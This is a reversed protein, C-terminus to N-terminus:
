RRGQAGQAGAGSGALCRDVAALLMKVHFPKHLVEDAGRRQALHLFDVAAAAAGSIAIVKLGPSARKVALITEIGEMVPMLLDTIVLDFGGAALAALGEQGNAADRVVHGARELISRLTRRILDEDDIVLVTAM